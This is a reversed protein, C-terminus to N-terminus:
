LQGRKIRAALSQVGNRSIPMGEEAMYEALGRVSLSGFEGAVFARLAELAAEQQEPTMVDLSSRFSRKTGIKAKIRDVLSTPSSNTKKMAM